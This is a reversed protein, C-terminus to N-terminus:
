GEAQRWPRSQTETYLLIHRAGFSVDLWALAAVRDAHRKTKEHTRLEAGRPFGIGCVTCNFKMTIGAAQKAVRKRHRRSNTYKVM